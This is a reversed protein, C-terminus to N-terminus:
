RTSANMWALDVADDELGLIPMIQVILPHLRRFESAFQWEIEAQLREPVPLAEIATNVQDLKGLELLGLRLQRASLNPMAARREDPTPESPPEPKAFVMGDYLWSPEVDDSCPLLSSVFDSSFREHIGFGNIPTIVESVVGNVVYAYNEM